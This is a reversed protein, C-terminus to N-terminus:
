ENVKKQEMYDRYCRSIYEDDTDDFLCTKEKFICKTCNQQTHCYRKLTARQAEIDVYNYEIDINKDLLEELKEKMEDVTMKIDERENREWLLERGDISTHTVSYAYKTFGFVKMIDWNSTNLHKLDSKYFRSLNYESPCAYFVDGLKGPMYLGRSGNRFEVVYGYQLDNFTFDQSLSLDEM